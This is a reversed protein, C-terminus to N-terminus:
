TGKGLFDRLITAMERPTEEQPAHGATEIVTLQANQIAEKLQVGQQVPAFGDRQGWIIATPIHLTNLPLPQHSAAWRALDAAIRHLALATGSVLLASSYEDILESPILSPNAFVERQGLRVIWAVPFISLALSSWFRNRFFQIVKPMNQLFVPADLLVLASPWGVFGKNLLLLLALLGGFSHGVLIYEDIGLHKIFASVVDACHQTAEQEPVDRTSRGHGPLDLFYYKYGAPLHSRVPGWSASSTGFGHLLVVPRGAGLTRYSVGLTSACGAHYIWDDAEPTM